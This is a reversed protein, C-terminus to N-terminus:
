LSGTRRLQLFRKLTPLPVPRRYSRNRYCEGPIGLLGSCIGRFRGRRMSDIIKNIVQLAGLGWARIPYNLFAYLGVNRIMGSTVDETQHHGLDTDHFVRLEGSQYIEWGRDFLQLSVDSEEMGYARALALYGRVERYASVRMAHGCGIYNAVRTLRSAREVPAEHRHWITAALVGTDPYDAFLREVTSFFDADVPYSDDDFSVAYPTTCHLLCRHRGGGPGLVIRSSLFHVQPLCGELKRELTGDSRDIHIWIESPQPDCKIIGELVSWVAAGRGFTPIVVAVPSTNPM